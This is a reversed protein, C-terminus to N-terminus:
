EKIKLKKTQTRGKLTIKSSKTKIPAAALITSEDLINLKKKPM